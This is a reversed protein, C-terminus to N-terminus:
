AKAVHTAFLLVAVSALMVAAFVLLATRAQWYSGDSFAL